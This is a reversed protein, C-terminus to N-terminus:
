RRRLGIAKLSELKKEITKISSLHTRRLTEYKQIEKIQSVRFDLWKNLTQETM